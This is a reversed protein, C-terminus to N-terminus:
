NFVIDKYDLELTSLIINLAWDYTNRTDAECNIVTEVDLGCLKSLEEVSLGCSIRAEELSM